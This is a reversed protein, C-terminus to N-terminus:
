LSGGCRRRAPRSPRTRRAWFVRGDRRVMEFEGEFAAGSQLLPGALRGIEAYADDSPWVARSSQGILTGAPWGLIEEFRPNVHQFNRDQTFAIGVSANELIAEYQLDRHQTGSVDRVTGLICRRGEHEFLSANISVPM